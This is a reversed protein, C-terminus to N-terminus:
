LSLDLCMQSLMVVTVFKAANIESCTACNVVVIILFHM